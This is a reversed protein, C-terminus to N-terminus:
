PLPRASENTQVVVLRLRDEFQQLCADRHGLVGDSPIPFRAVHGYPVVACGLVPGDVIVVVLAADHLADGQDALDGHIDVPPATPLDATPCRFRDRILFSSCMDGSIGHALPGTAISRWSTAYSSCGPFPTSNNGADRSRLQIFEVRSRNALRQKGRSM